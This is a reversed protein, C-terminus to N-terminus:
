MRGRKIRKRQIINNRVQEAKAVIGDCKDKYRAYLDSEKFDENESRKVLEENLSNNLAESKRRWYKPIRHKVKGVSVFRKIVLSSENDLLYSLGLGNSMRQFPPVSKKEKWRFYDKQLYDLTYRVSKSSLFDFYVNGLSWAGCVKEKFKKYLDRKLFEAVSDMGEKFYLFILVHYHPRGLDEGYEGSYYYKYSFYREGIRLRKFFKQVDSICLNAGEPLHEDDYTLTLTYSRDCYSSECMLRVYWDKIRNERCVICKGCPVISAPSKWSPMFKPYLCVM